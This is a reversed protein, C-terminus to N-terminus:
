QRVLIETLKVPNSILGLEQDILLKEIARGMLRISLLYLAFDSNEFPKLAAPRGVILFTGRDDPSDAFCRRSM